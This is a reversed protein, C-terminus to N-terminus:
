TDFSNLPTEENTQRQELPEVGLAASILLRALFAGAAQRQRIGRTGVFMMPIMRPETLRLLGDLLRGEFDIPHGEIYLLPASCEAKLRDLQRVFMGHSKGMVCDEIERVGSKRERLRTTRHSDLGYDGTPLRKEIVHIRASVVKQANSSM